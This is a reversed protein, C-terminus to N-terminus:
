PHSGRVDRCPLRRAVLRRSVAGIPDTPRPENSRDLKREAAGLENKAPARGDVRWYVKLV